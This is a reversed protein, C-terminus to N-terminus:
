LAPTDSDFLLQTATAQIVGFQEVRQEHTFKEVSQTARVAEAQSHEFMEQSFQAIVALLPTNGCEAAVVTAAYLEMPSLSYVAHALGEFEALDDTVPTAGVAEAAEFWVPYKAWSSETQTIFEHAKAM